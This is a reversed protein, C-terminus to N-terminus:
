EARKEKERRRRIKRNEHEKEEFKRRGARGIKYTKRV